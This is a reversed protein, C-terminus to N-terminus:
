VTKDINLINEMNLEEAFDEHTLHDRGSIKEFPAIHFLADGKHVLPLQLTGIIIGDVPSIVKEENEGFPDYISALVEDKKITAGLGFLSYFIGSKPARVWSTGEVVIPERLRKGEKKRKPLMGLERMVSIIGKLGFQIAHENFRLCEGAEYTIIPIGKEIVAERLSNDRMLANIIVPAGFALALREVEPDDLFVRLQPLNARHNAGTHLDIGHTCKGVIEDMFLRAINSALSGKYSGPFSRNLDRRDPLYRSKNIFGYVNVIPIAILTGKLQKLLKLRLLRRVIEVGNIEDGHIAASVFLRPGEKKAHIVHVPMTMDNHSYLRAIPLDITRREGAKVSVDGITIAQRM